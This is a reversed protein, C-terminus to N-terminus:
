EVFMKMRCASCDFELRYRNKADLLYLPEANEAGNGGCLGFQFRLCHKMEMVQKGSHDPQLEFAPEIKEVGHRRYFQEAKKNAVNALYTLNKEPYSFENPVIEMHQQPYQKSREEELQAIAERRLDNLFSVPLFYPKTWQVTITDCAFITEGLKSLQKRVSEEAASKKEAEVLDCERYIMVQVGDEDAVVLAVGNQEKRLEMMLFIRRQTKDSKLQKIFAHDHNRYMATGIELGEIESPFIKTGEVVNVNTGRLENHADLFCIGDGNNVTQKGDLTFYDREITVLKGLFAGTAKPTHISLIDKSRRRIFHETFDRHFSKQPDPSFAFMTRGSSARAYYSNGELVEDIRQRYFAVVNKVYNIDKLRGEIKFSTVGANLLAALHDSLNLDKLSLLYKNEAIVNGSEDVLTYPLRCPQACEGRNASRGQTAESLYCQGSFSVCLAGHIFYELEVSTAARIQQIQKLSLERALIVRQFGVKELFQIKAADDNHTQTSAVLPIPPLGLELLGMDQVILADAGAEYVAQVIGRAEELEDDFLITNLAVFVKARYRHAYSILKGIDGISNGVAARAGFKPAGIYVADAGYRVAAMGCELDRAPALLEIHKQQQTM